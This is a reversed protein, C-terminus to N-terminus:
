PIPWEQTGRNEFSHNQPFAFLAASLKTSAGFHQTGTLGQAQTERAAYSVANAALTHTIDPQLNSVNNTASSTALSNTATVDARALSHRIRNRGGKAKRAM